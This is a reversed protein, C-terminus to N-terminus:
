NSSTARKGGEASLARFKAPDNEKMHAFGGKGGRNRRSKALQERQWAKVEEDTEVGLKKRMTAYYRERQHERGM